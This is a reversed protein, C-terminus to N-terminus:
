AGDGKLQDIHEEYAKLFAKGFLTHFDESADNSIQAYHETFVEWMRAKRSGPLLSQLMSGKTLRGELVAPDFRQLVGELAARMGAIFGFQHARLDDYADRMAPAAAMFGRTPPALLHQLAADASPSFKLPNNERAVIMTAEARVERKLAARAVLLDVTGKASEHVLQGILRMLDPTLADIQVTPTALGERFAALLAAADSSGAPVARTVAAAPPAVPPAAAPALPSALPSAFPAAAPAVVPPVFPPAVPAAAAAVRAAAAPQLPVPAAAPALAAFPDFDASLPSEPAPAARLPVAPAVPAAPRLPAPASEAARASPRIVTHGVSDPADWSMVAGSPRGPAPPTMPPAAPLPAAPRRVEALPPATFPLNLDSFADSVTAASAKPAMNLSQLPDSSAMMNPKSAPNALASNALPDATGGSKLGFLSDLSDGGGPGASGAQMGPILPGPAAGGIDLGFGGAPKGLSQAFGGTGPKAPTPDPAFPDWDEPIGAAAAAPPAGARGYVGPSTRPVPDPSFAALPDPLGARSPLPSTAAGVPDLLSAFPDDNASSLGAMAVQVTLVFSGIQLRDGAALPAERGSDVERANVQIPNSGRNVVAYAGARFAVQAHVRSVARDPDDLVLQNTDARGITGGLEDFTASAAHSVPAGNHSIVTLTIV